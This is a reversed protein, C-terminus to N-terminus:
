RLEVLQRIPPALVMLEKYRTLFIQLRSIYTDEQYPLNHIRVFRSVIPKIKLCMHDSLNPFLHHEVHCSVISHGFTWDLLYNRPLNLVSNAMLQLRHPRQSPSFMPLGIHQFINVHIFPISLLTRSLYMCGLASWLDLGSYWILIQLQCFLGMFICFLSQLARLYPMKTMSQLGVIIALVPLALPAVFMYIGCSLMPAKWISSDGLGIINTHGHHLNVHSEEGCTVPVSGCVEVFFIAWFRGFSPSTCLARHSAMHGGKVSLVSHSLGLILIGLVWLLPTHSGVCLFGAPLLCIAFGIISWDVGHREWWNSKKWERRVMRSLEHMWKSEVDLEQFSSKLDDGKLQKLGTDHNPTSNNGTTNPRSMSDPHGGSHTEKGNRRGFSKLEQNKNALNLRYGVRELNEKEMRVVEKTGRGVFNRRKSEPVIPPSRAM